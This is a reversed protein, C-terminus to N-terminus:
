QPFSENFPSSDCFKIIQNVRNNLSHIFYCCNLHPRIPNKTSPCAPDHMPQHMPPPSTSSTNTKKFINKILPCWKKSTKDILKFNNQVFLVHRQVMLKVFISNLDLIQNKKINTRGLFVDKQSM